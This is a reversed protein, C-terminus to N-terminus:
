VYGSNDYNLKQLCQIYFVEIRSKLNAFVILYIHNISIENYSTYFRFTQQISIKILLNLIYFIINYVAIFFSSSGFRM